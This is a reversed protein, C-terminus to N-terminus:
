GGVGGLAAGMALLGTSVLWTAALMPPGHPVVTRDQGAGAPARDARSSSCRDTRHPPDRDARDPRRPDVRQPPDRNTARPPRRGGPTTAPIVAIAVTLLAALVAALAVAIWSSAALVAGLPAALKVDGAGLASPALVHVAGYVSAAVVAGAVGRLVAPPGVPGLLLLAVPLAPLTLRDPLRHHLIDVAGAAAALWGLGLLVAMWRTSLLGLAWGAGTLSWLMAVVAECWGFPVAAGRRLRYPLSRAGCGAVAGASGLLLVTIVEM